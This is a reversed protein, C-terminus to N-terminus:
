PLSALRVRGLRHLETLAEEYERITTTPESSVEERHLELADVHRECGHQVPLRQMYDLVQDALTRESAIYAKM